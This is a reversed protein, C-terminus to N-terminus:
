GPTAPALRKRGATVAALPVGVAMLLGVGGTLCLIGPIGIVSVLPELATLGIAPAIAAAGNVMGLARARHREDVSEVVRSTMSTYLWGMGVGMILLGATAVAFTHGLAFVITGAGQLAFSVSVVLNASLRARARGYIAAMIAALISNAMM